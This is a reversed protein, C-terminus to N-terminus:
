VFRNLYSISEGALAEVGPEYDFVEVSVWRDYEIEKLAEFIPGFDVEGMGPGRKNPDNAHFHVLCDRSDRIIDPISAQETSMAKVDLHLQVNAHDIQDVLARGAEATLLFDGEEPGLPEVALTVCQDAFVPTAEGIVKAAIEMARDHDVDPLLNRQFPSGLVMVKGGLDGCLRALSKLYDTTAQQVAADTTTLYFGETFALLWHLGIVELGHDAALDRIEKRKADSINRVDKEITFPAIEIGTYGLERARAFARDLPWDQFTENCIGFKM